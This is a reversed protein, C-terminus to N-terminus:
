KLSTQKLVRAFRETPRLQDWVYDGVIDYSLFVDLEAVAQELRALTEDRNGLGMHLIAYATPSVHVGSAAQADLRALVALAKDRQGTVGYLYGLFAPSHGTRAEAGGAEMQEIAEAFRAQGGYSRALHYRALRYNPDLELTRKAQTIADEYHRSLFLAALLINNVPLSTPDLARARQGGAIAEDWRGM